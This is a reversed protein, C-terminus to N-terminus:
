AATELVQRVISGLAMYEALDSPKRFYTTAGLSRARERDKPSDSSTIVIVPVQSCGPHERFEKLIDHGDVKPLNLDLLFVDPCLPTAHNEDPEGILGMVESGDSALHMEFQIGHSRLAEQVLFVDGENDEALLVQFNRPTM